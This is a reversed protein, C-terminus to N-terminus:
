SEVQPSTPVSQPMDYKFIASNVYLSFLLQYDFTSDLDFDFLTKRIWVRDFNCWLAIGTKIPCFGFFIKFGQVEEPFVPFGQLDKFIRLFGASDWHM